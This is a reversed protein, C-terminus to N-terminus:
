MIKRSSRIQDEDFWGFTRGSRPYAICPKYGERMELHTIFPDNGCYMCFFGPKETM